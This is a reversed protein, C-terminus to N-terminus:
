ARKVDGVGLYADLGSESLIRRVPSTPNEIVFSAGQLHHAAKAGTLLARIGASSVYVLDSADVALKPTAPKLQELIVAQAQPATLADLRGSFAVVQWDNRSSLSIKFEKNEM